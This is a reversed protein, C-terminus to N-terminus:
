KGLAKRLESLDGTWGITLWEKDRAWTLGNEGKNAVLYRKEVGLAAAESVCGVVVAVKAPKGPRVCAALARVQGLRNADAPQLSKAVFAPAGKSWDLVEAVAWLPAKPDPRKAILERVPESLHSVGEAAPQTPVNGMDVAVLRIVMTRDDAIWLLGRKLPGPIADSTFQYVGNRGDGAVSRPKAKLAGIIRKEHPERTRVILTLPPLITEDARAGLGVMDIEDLKLKTLEEVRRLSLQRGGLNVSESLGTQSRELEGVRVCILVNTDPPLYGLPALPSESPQEPGPGERDPRSPRLPRRKVVGRDNNRRFSQTMLAYTLGLGAMLVMVGLVIAAVRRNASRKSRLV